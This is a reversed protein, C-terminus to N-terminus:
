VALSWKLPQFGPEPAGIPIGSAAVSSDIALIDLAQGVDV